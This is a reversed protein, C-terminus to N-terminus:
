ICGDRLIINADPGHESVRLAPPLRVRLTGTVLRRLFAHLRRFSIVRPVLHAVLSGPTFVLISALRALGGPIIIIPGEPELTGTVLYSVPVPHLLRVM